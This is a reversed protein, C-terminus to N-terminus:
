PFLQFNSTVISFILPIATLMVARFYMALNYTNCGPKLLASLDPSVSQMVRPFSTEVRLIQEIRLTIHVLSQTM